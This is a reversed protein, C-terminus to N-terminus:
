ADTLVKEIPSNRSNCQNHLCHKFIFLVVQLIVMSFSEFILRSKQKEPDIKMEMERNKFNKNKIRIKNIKNQRYITTTKRNLQKKHIM